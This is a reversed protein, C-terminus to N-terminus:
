LMRQRRFWSVFGLGISGLLIASPAPIVYQDPDRTFTLDDLVVFSNSVRFAAIDMSKRVIGRFAGQNIGSTSIPALENINYSELVTGNIDLAEVLVDLDSGPAYNIFGGVANVYEDNFEFLMYGGQGFTGNLGVFTKGEGWSGNSALGYDAPGIVSAGYPQTTTWVIDEGVLGGIQIPGGTFTLTTFQSFDVTKLTPCIHFTDTVLGARSSRSFAVFVALFLLISKSKM